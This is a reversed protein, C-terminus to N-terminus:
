WAKVDPLYVELAEGEGNFVGKHGIFSAEEVWPFYWDSPTVDPFHQQVAVKGDILPGRGLAKSIMAAVQARTVPEDPRFTGDAYGQLFGLRVATEIEDYAWHSSSVDSFTASDGQLKAFAVPTIEYMRVMTVALEARTAPRDPEFAGGNGTFIGKATAAAIYPRAWHNSIDNFQVGTNSLDQLEMLRAVIAAMQGRTISENPRFTGDPFGIVFPIHVKSGVQVEETNSEEPDYGDAKIVATNKIISGPQAQPDVKLKLSIVDGDDKKLDGLTWTVTRTAADYQGNHTASVFETNDPLVDTITVDKAGYNMSYVINYTIEGGPEVTDALAKKSINYPAGLDGCITADVGGIQITIGGLVAGLLEIDLVGGHAESRGNEKVTSGDMLGLKLLGPIELTDGVNIKITQGLLDLVVTDVKVYPDDTLSAHAKAHLADIKLIGAVNVDAVQVEADAYTDTSLATTKVAGVTVLTALDVDAVSGIAQAMEDDVQVDGTLVGVNALTGLDATLLEEHKPAQDRTASTELPILKDAGLLRLGLPYTSGYSNATGDYMSNTIGLDLETPGLKLQLIANLDIPLANLLDSVVPLNVLTDGVSGTITTVTGIPDHLLNNVTGIPDELVSGVTQLVPLGTDGLAEGVPTLLGGLVGNVTDLLGGVVDGVGGLVNGVVPVDELASDSDTDDGLGLLGDALGGLLGGVAGNVSGLLDTLEEANPLVDVEVARASATSRVESTSKAAAAVGANAVVMAGVLVGCLASTLGKAKKLLRRM